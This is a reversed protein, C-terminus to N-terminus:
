PATTPAPAVARSATQRPRMPRRRHTPPPGLSPLPRLLHCHHPPTPLSGFFRWVLSGQGPLLDPFLHWLNLRHCSTLRRVGQAPTSHEWCQHWSDPLLTRTNRNHDRCGPLLRWAQRVSGQWAGLHSGGTSFPGTERRLSLIQLFFCSSFASLWSPTEWTIATPLTGGLTGSTLVPTGGRGGFKARGRTEEPRLVTREQMGWLWDSALDQGNGKHCRGEGKTGAWSLGWWRGPDRVGCGRGSYGGSLQGAGVM